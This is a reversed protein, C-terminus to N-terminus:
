RKPNPQSTGVNNCSYQHITSSVIICTSSVGVKAAHSCVKTPLLLIYFAVDLTFSLSSRGGGQLAAREGWQEYRYMASM